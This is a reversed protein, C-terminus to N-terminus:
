FQYIISLQKIYLQKIISLYYFQQYILKNAFVLFKMKASLAVVVATFVGIFELSSFAFHLQFDILDKAFLFSDVKCSILYCSWDIPHNSLEDQLNYVSEVKSVVLREHKLFVCHIKISVSNMFGNRLVAIVRVYEDSRENDIDNVRLDYFASFAYLNFKTDSIHLTEPRIFMEKNMLSLEIGCDFSNDTTDVKRNSFTYLFLLRFDVSLYCLCVLYILIDAGTCGCKCCNFLINYSSLFNAVHRFYKPWFMKEFNSKSITQKERGFRLSIM